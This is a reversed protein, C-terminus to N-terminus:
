VTKSVSIETYDLSRKSATEKEEPTKRTNSAWVLTVPTLVTVDAGMVWAAARELFSTDFLRLHAM